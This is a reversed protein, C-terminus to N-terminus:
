KVALSHSHTQQHPYCVSNGALSPQLILGLTLFYDSCVFGGLNLTKEEKLTRGHEESWLIMEHKQLQLIFQHMPIKLSLYKAYSIIAKTSPM